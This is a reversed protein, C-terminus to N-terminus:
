RKSQELTFYRELEKISAKIYTSSVRDSTIMVDLEQNMRFNSIDIGEKTANAYVDEKGHVTLSVEDQTIHAVYGTVIDGENLSTITSSNESFYDEYM